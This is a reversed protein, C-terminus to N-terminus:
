DAVAPAAAAPERPNLIADIARRIAVILGGAAGLVAPLSTVAQKIPFVPHNYSLGLRFRAISKYLLLAFFAAVAVATALDIARRAAKPMRVYFYDVVIDQDRNLLVLYGIFYMLVALQSALDVTVVSSAAFASRAVIEFASLAVVLALLFTCFVLTARDLGDVARGFLRSSRHVTPLPSFAIV